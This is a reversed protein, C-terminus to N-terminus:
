RRRWDRDPRNEFGRGGRPFDSEYPSRDGRMMDGRGYDWGRDSGYNRDRPSSATGYGRDHDRDYNRDFNSGYDRDYGRDYDRDRDALSRYGGRDREYSGGRYGGSDWSEAGYGSDLDGRGFSGYGTREIEGRGLDRDRDRADRSWRTEYEHDVDHRGEFRNEFRDPTWRYAFRTDRANHRYADSAYRDGRDRDPNPMEHEPDYSGIFRERDRPRWM